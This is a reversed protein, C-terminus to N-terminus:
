INRNTYILGIIIFIGIGLNFTRLLETNYSKTTDLYNQDYGYHTNQMRQLNEAKEKNKCLEKLNCNLKNNGDSNYNTINCSTDWSDYPKLPNCVFNNITPTDEQQNFKVYFFDSPSYSILVNSM